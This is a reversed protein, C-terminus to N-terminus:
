KRQIFRDQVEDYYLLYSSGALIEAETQYVSRWEAGDDMLQIQVSYLGPAIWWTILGASAGEKRLGRPRFSREVVVTGDVMLRVQVPFREGGLISVPDVNAPIKAAIEPPLHSATAMLHGSHGIGLRIQGHEPQRASANQYPLISIALVLALLLFGPLLRVALSGLPPRAPKLAKELSVVSALQGLEGEEGGGASKGAVMRRWLTMVEGQSGPALHLLHTNGTRLTRRRKLRHEVWHSGERFACDDIPCSVMIAGAAGAEISEAAWNPHLMGMCPSVATVVPRPNGAGDLWLGQNVRGPLAAQILSIQLPNPEAMQVQSFPPLSGLAAHRDCTYIIVPPQGSQQNSQALTRRLDQRIVASHLGTLEVADDACAGVCVGCGTCLNSRVVALSPFSTDDDRHVMDIASYPCERACLACGTCRQNLIIAPGSHQGSLLWPTALLLAILLGSGGWFLPAGLLSALPLFGMYIWDIPVREVLQTMKAPLGNDVPWLLSVVVLAALAILTLWRPTWYRTRAMRLGHILVGVILLTPIFIHLFLIIVFFSFTRSAANAYLFSLAFSGRFFLLAYEMLWQAAQDWVLFYGMTGVLWFIVVMVWGSVWALWRSGWFRDSLFVKIGHLLSLLILGDSAYRHSTRVFGGLWFNSMAAVSQFATDSGPRYFLTLYLGTATVYLLLFIILPGLYYLPNYPRLLGGAPAARGILRELATWSRELVRLRRRALYVTRM